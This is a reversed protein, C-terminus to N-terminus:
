PLAHKQLTEWAVNAIDFSRYSGCHSGNQIVCLITEAGEGCTPYTECAPRNPVAQPSGTCMNIQGRDRFNMQAGPFFLGPVVPTEGGAYPVITDATGRFTIETVPRSPSCMACSPNVTSGTVCDCDVPAIAAIVDAADCALKYSMGGGNSCGTSYVRKPDICADTKLQNIMARVFGVDDVRQQMAPNCCRGMNWSNGVGNPYVMIFGRADAVGRWNSTNMQSMGSGGLGHFDFVVPVPTRGTYNPPVYLVYSRNMGGAMVMKTTTGAAATATSPCEAGASGAAGDGAGGRASTGAAGGGAGGRGALGATGGRGSSGAVGTGAGGAAGGSGPSAGGTGPAGTGAAGATGGSGAGGGSAGGRGNAGAPGGATGTVAGGAAGSSGSIGAASGGTANAGSGGGSGAAPSGGRGGSGSASGGSGGSGTGDGTSGCGAFWLAAIGSVISQAAPSWLNRNMM